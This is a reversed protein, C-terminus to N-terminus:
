NKKELKAITKYLERVENLHSLQSQNLKDQTDHLLKYSHALDDVLKKLVGTTECNYKIHNGVLNSDSFNGEIHKSEPHKGKILYDATCDLANCLKVITESSPDSKGSEILSITAQSVGSLEALKKMNLNRKQRLGRLGQLYM